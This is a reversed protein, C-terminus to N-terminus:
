CRLKHLDCVPASGPIVARSLVKLALLHSTSPSGTPLSIIISSDALVRQTLCFYFICACWTSVASSSLHFHSILAVNYTFYLNEAGSHLPAFVFMSQTSVERQDSTPPKLVGSYKRQKETLSIYILQVM